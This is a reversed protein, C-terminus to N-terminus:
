RGLERDTTQWRRDCLSCHWHQVTYDLVYEQRDYDMRNEETTGTLKRCPEPHNCANQISLLEEQLKKIEAKIEDIRNM